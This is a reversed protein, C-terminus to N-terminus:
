EEENQDNENEENEEENGTGFRNQGEADRRALIDPVEDVTINPLKKLITEDDLYPAEMVVAEIQEKLNSVRNRKFVPVDEIGMLTLIQQIFEIIQYEFDDARDDMAQYAMDIHDNTAGATVTHVDLAGFSEYMEARIHTLFEKRAAYPIEQTYPTVTANDADYTAVHWLKLRDMFGRLDETNMGMANGILWYIQACDQLDNAFGSQILDYSDIAGRLGVLTSQHKRSGWLPVIPLSGYNEYGVIHTGDAETTATQVKYARKQEVMMLERKSGPRSRYKTYGDEEYLVATIPKDSSLQWYRIGARLSGDDEDWLPVFETAKFVYLRDLNWFGYSIGHILAFRAANYLDTDFKPGLKDKTEDVTVTRGGKQVQRASAFSVGNGLSYAVRQTNLMDFYNSAIRNNSVTPDPVTRGQMTYILRMFGNITVNRQADYETADVATKYEATTQYQDIAKRIADAVNQEALFDNYTMM